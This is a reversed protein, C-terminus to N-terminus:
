KNYSIYLYGAKNITQNEKKYELIYYYTGPPLGVDRKVTDRGDSYGKFMNDSENYSKADFVKVGWRNYIEVRNDPYQDIGQIHFTDNIGDGNPSLANYVIVDSPPAPNIKSVSAITFLGYGSVQTTVLKSYHAGTLLDTSEGGENIWKSSAGDWRVIALQTDPNEQFFSAPTTNTDLTLTLVIKETGQNQTLNWYEAQDIALIEDEKSTYPYLPGANAFFYQTTYVNNLSTSKDHYTPRFYYNDGIPFEFNLNGINEVQGDVFSLNSADTHFANQEFIMKTNFSDADIIGNKFTVNSGINISTMLSFPVLVSKNDFEVNQFHPIESGEILQVRTGTFFTKGASNDDYTVLGNNKFNSYAYFNGDILVDGSTENVFDSVTSFATSSAISLEGINVTQSAIKSIFFLLLIGLKIDNTKM